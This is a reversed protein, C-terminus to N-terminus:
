GGDGRFFRRKLGNLPPTIMRQVINRKLLWLVGKFASEM